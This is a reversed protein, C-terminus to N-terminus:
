RFGERRELFTKQDAFFHSQLIPQKEAIYGVARESYAWLEEAIKEHNDPLAPLQVQCEAFYEGSLSELGPSVSCHIQTQCGEDATKLFLYFLPYTIAKLLFPFERFIGTFITGPQLAFVSLGNANERRHLEKMFLVEALKSQTYARFQSPFSETDEQEFSDFDIDGWRHGISSVFVVRPKPSRRLLPLLLLTLLFPGLHNTAFLVPHGTKTLGTGSGIGANNLLVDLREESTMVDRAFKRVSAFNSLDLRMLVLNLNGTQMEINRKVRLGKQWDRCTMIVRAGRRALDLASEKGIGDSAGTVIVTKGDM